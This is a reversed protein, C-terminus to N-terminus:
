REYASQQKYKYLAHLHNWVAAASSVYIWGIKYSHLLIILIICHASEAYINTM